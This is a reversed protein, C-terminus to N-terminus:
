KKKAREASDLEAAVDRVATPKRVPAAQRTASGRPRVKKGPHEEIYDAAWKLLGLLEGGTVRDRKNGGSWVGIYVCERFAYRESLRFITM